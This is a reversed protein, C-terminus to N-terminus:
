TALKILAKQVLVTAETDKKCYALMSARLEERTVGDRLEGTVMQFYAEVAAGGQSVVGLDEYSFGPALAPAVSKLTFISGATRIACAKM